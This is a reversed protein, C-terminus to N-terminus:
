NYLLTQSIIKSEQSITINTSLILNLKAFNSKIKKELIAETSEAFISLFYFLSLHRGLIYKLSKCFKLVSKVTEFLLLLSINMEKSFDSILLTECEEHMSITENGVLM